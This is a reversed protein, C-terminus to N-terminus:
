AYNSIKDLLEEQIKNLDALNMNKIYYRELEDHANKAKAIYRIAQQMLIETNTCNFNLEDNAENIRSPDYFQRLDYTTCNSSNPESIDHYVNATIISVKLEPIILHEVREPAMPCYFAETYLGRILAEKKLYGIIESTNSGSPATLRFIKTGSCLSDLNDTFGGPTIGSAFMRRIRGYTKSPQIDKFIEAALEYAFFSLQGKDAANDYITETDKKLFSAAKLYNYARNFYGKVQQSVSIIQDKFSELGKEDWFQGLNIIEDVVGPFVPDVVHPATGDLIAIKLKPIVIGDLSNNDSSCRMFEVEYGKKSFELGVKKMITSKGTGPGGKLIFIKRAELPSIVYEYYSYFGAPTNGGPYMQRIRGESM